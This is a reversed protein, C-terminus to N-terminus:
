ATDDGREELAEQIEQAREKFGLSRYLYYLHYVAYFLIAYFVLYFTYELYALNLGLLPAGPVIDRVAHVLVGATFTTLALWMYTILSQLHGPSARRHVQYAREITISALALVAIALPVTLDM